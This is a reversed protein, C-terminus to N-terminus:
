LLHKNAKIADSGLTVCNKKKLLPFDVRCSTTGKRLYETERRLLCPFAVSPVM